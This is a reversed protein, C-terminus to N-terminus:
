HLLDLFDYTITVDLSVDGSGGVLDRSERTHDQMIKFPTFMVWTLRGAQRGQSSPSSSRLRASIGGDIEM